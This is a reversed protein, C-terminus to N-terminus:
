RHAPLRLYADPILSTALMVDNINQHERWPTSARHEPAIWFAEIEPALASLAAIAHLSRKTGPADRFVSGRSSIQEQVIEMGQLGISLGLERFALRQTAERQLEGQARYHHLGAISAALLADLMGDDVLSDGDILQALVAADSLLGGLGLPDGTALDDRRIMASLRDARTSMANAAEAAGSALASARLQLCRIYGDLPDHHGMSAVLPRSLDISMKWVMRLGSGPAGVTFRDCATQLLERGWTGLPADALRRSAVDLAHAWKSLYHFYQGDRDWELREDMPVGLRREPLTKGIRLGGATPHKRGQEEDLGSIWGKRHDDARHRGLVQHVQDILTGAHSLYEPQGTSEALGLLNCLGFADTWLYRVPEGDGTVGTRLLFDDMLSQALEARTSATTRTAAMHRVSSSGGSVILGDANQPQSALNIEATGKRITSYHRM